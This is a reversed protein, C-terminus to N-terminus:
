RLACKLEAPPSAMLDCLVTNIQDTTANNLVRSDKYSTIVAHPVTGNANEFEELFVQNKNNLALNEVLSKPASCELCGPRYYFKIVTYGAKVIADLVTPDVEYNVINSKPIDNPNTTPTGFFNVSQIVAFSVTSGVMILLFFISMFKKSSFKIKM